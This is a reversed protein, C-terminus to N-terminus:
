VAMRALLHTGFAPPLQADVSVYWQGAHAFAACKVADKETMLVPLDDDGFHLDGARFRHHDPFPHPIVSLGAAQLFSFFRVPHGIGAVAHVPTDRFASLPRPAYAGALSIVASATLTAAYEGPLPAGYVVRLPIQALRRMPERLPGAPLCRGNGMGRVRDVLAVEVDRVLAYHQLGDDAILCNCGYQDCLLAGAKARRQCVAVPVGSRRALLLPEDGVDWPDDDRQVVQPLNGVHGGYGRSIIGPRWGHATLFQAIWLVTPTKGTGGVTVNGVVIVPVPLRTSAFWGRLYGQRRIM